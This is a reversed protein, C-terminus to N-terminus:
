QGAYKRELWQVAFKVLDAADFFYSQAVGVKGVCGKGSALYEQPITQFYQEANPLISGCTDYEEIDTWVRKGDRLIPMKYRVTRKNSVNAMHEAYHM